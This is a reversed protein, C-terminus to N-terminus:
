QRTGRSEAVGILRANSLPVKITRGESTPYRIFDSYRRQASLRQAFRGLYFSDAGAVQQFIISM